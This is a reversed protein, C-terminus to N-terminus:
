CRFKKNLKELLLSIDFPICYDSLSYFPCDYLSLNQVDSILIFYKKYALAYGLEVHSGKGGPLVLIFFDCNEIGNLEFKSIECFEDNSGNKNIIHQTWDYSCIYGERSLIGILAKAENINKTSTSIYFKM